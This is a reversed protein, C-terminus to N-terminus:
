NKLAAVSFEYAASFHVWFFIINFIHTHQRLREDKNNNNTESQPWFCIWLCCNPLRTRPGNIDEEEEEEEKPEEEHSKVTLTEEEQQEQQQHHQQQQQQQPLQEAKFDEARKLLRKLNTRLLRPTNTPKTLM